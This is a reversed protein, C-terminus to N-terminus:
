GGVRLSVSSGPRVPTGPAPRQEVVTGESACCVDGVVLGAAAVTNWADIHGRGILDPVPVLEPGKSVTVIVTEGHDLLTGPPPALSLVAGPPARDHFVQRREVRLGREEIEDVVADVDQGDALPPVAAPAPGKSVILPVVTRAPVREPVADAVAIVDGSPVDDHFVEEVSHRLDARELAEVVATLPRGRVVSPLTRLRATAAPAPEDVPSEDSWAEAAAFGILLVGAVLLGAALWRSLRGSSRRARGRAKGEPLAPPAVTAVELFRQFEAQRCARTDVEEPPPTVSHDGANGNAGAVDDHAGEDPVAGDPDEEPAAGADDSPADERAPSEPSAADGTPRRHQLAERRIAAAWEAADHRIARADIEARRRIEAAVRHAESVVPDSSLGTSRGSLPDHNM